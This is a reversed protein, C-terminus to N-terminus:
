SGEKVNISLSFLPRFDPGQKSAADDVMSNFLLIVFQLFFDRSIKYLEGSLSKKLLQATVM